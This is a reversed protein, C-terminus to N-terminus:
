ACPPREFTSGVDPGGRPVRDGATPGGRTV